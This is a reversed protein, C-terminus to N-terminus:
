NWNRGGNRAKILYTINALDRSQDQLKISNRAFFLSCGKWGTRRKMAWEEGEEGDEASYERSRFDLAWKKKKELFAPLFPREPLFFFFFLVTPKAPWICAIGFTARTKERMKSRIRRIFKKEMREKDFNAKINRWSTEYIGKITNRLM